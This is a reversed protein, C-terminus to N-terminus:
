DDAPDVACSFYRRCIAQSEHEGALFCIVKASHIPGFPMRGREWRGYTGEDADVLLAAAKATLGRRRREALLEEALAQPEPWPEYGLFAIIRPFHQVMPHSQGREWDVLTNEGIGLMSCADKQRLGLELRRRKLQIGLADGELAAIEPKRAKLPVSVGPLLFEVRGNVM